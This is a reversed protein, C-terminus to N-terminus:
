WVFPFIRKSEKLYTAYQPFVALLYVEELLIKAYLTFCLLFYIFGNVVSGNSVFFSLCVWLVALYMPHRLYRYIGTTVLKAGPRVHPFFSFKSRRIEYLAVLGVAMGSIFLILPFFIFQSYNARFALFFICFFQMLVLITPILANM